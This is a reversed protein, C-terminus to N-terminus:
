IRVYLLFFLLFFMLFVSYFDYLGSLGKVLGNSQMCVLFYVGQDAMIFFTLKPNVVSHNVCLVIMIESMESRKVRYFSALSM